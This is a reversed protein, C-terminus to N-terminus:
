RALARRIREVLERERFRLDDATVRIVRWGLDQLREYRVIDKRFQKKDRHGDGEYEVLVRQAPYVLDVEALRRGQGDFVDRNISPEPLGAQVILLRLRTEGASRSNCRVLAAARILRRHYPRADDSAAEVLRQRLVENEPVGKRVISDGAAVLAPVSLVTGLQSWTEIAGAMPLGHLWVQLGPRDILHHGQVGANRPARRPRVVAVHLVPDEEVDRPLWMGQLLAATGFAFFEGDAFIPLYARARELVTSPVVRSRVGQFPRALDGARLRSESVGHERADATRFAAGTFRPPLPDPRGTM